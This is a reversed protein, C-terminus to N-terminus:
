KKAIAANPPTVGEKEDNKTNTRLSCVVKVVSHLLDLYKHFRLKIESNVM